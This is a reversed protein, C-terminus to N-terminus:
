KTESIFIMKWTWNTPFNKFTFSVKWRMLLSMPNERWVLVPITVNTPVFEFTSTFHRNVNFLAVEVLDSIRTFNTRSLWPSCKELKLSVRFDNMVIDSFEFAFPLRENRRVNSEILKSNMAWQLHPFSNPSFFLSTHWTRIWVPSCGKLHLKTPQELANVWWVSKLLCTQPWTLIMIITILVLNFYLSKLGAFTRVLALVLRTQFSKHLFALQSCVFTSTM